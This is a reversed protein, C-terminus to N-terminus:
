KKEQREMTEMLYIEVKIEGTKKVNKKLGKNEETAFLQDKLPSSTLM